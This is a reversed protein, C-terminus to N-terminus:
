TKSKMERRKQLKSYLDAGGLESYRESLARHAKVLELSADYYGM